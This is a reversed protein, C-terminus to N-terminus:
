RGQKIDRDLRRALFPDLKKLLLYEDQAYGFDGKELYLLGLGYHGVADDPALREMLRHAERIKEWFTLAHYAKKLGLDATELGPQLRLAQKYAKAAQLYHGADLLKQGQQCFDQATGETRGSAALALFLMTMTIIKILRLKEM